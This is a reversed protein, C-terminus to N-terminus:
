QKVIAMIIVEISSSYTLEQSTDRVHDVQEGSKKLCPLSLRINSQQVDSNLVAFFLKDLM